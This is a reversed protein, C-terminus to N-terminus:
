FEKDVESFYKELYKYPKLHGSFEEKLIAEKSIQIKLLKILNKIKFLDGSSFVCLSYNNINSFLIIKKNEKDELDAIHIEKINTQARIITNMEITALQASLLSNFLDINESNIEKNLNNLLTKDYLQSIIPLGQTSIGSYLIKTTPNINVKQKIDEKELLIKYKDRLFDTIIKLTEKFVRKKSAQKILDTTYYLMRVKEFFESLMNDIEYSNNKFNGSVFFLLNKNENIYHKILIREKEMKSNKLCIKNLRWTQKPNFVRLFKTVFLIIEFKPYKNEDSLYLIDNELIIGYGTIM